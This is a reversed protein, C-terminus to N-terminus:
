RAIADPTMEWLSESVNEQFVVSAVMARDGRRDAKEARPGGTTKQNRKEDKECFLRAPRRAISVSEGRKIAARRGSERKASVRGKL